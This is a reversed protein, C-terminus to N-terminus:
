SYNSQMEVVLIERFVGKTYEFVVNDDVKIVLSLRLYLCIAKILEETLIPSWGSVRALEAEHQSILGLSTSAMLGDLAYSVLLEVMVGDNPHLTPVEWYGSRMVEQYLKILFSKKDIHSLKNSYATSQLAKEFYALESEIRKKRLSMTSLLPGDLTPLISNLQTLEQKLVEYNEAGLGQASSQSMFDSLPATEYTQLTESLYSGVYEGSDYLINLLAGGPGHLKVGELSGTTKLLELATASTPMDEYIDLLSSFYAEVQRVNGRFGIRNQTRIEEIAKDASGFLDELEAAIESYDSSVSESYLGEGTELLEEQQNDEDMRGFANSITNITDSVLLHDIGEKLNGKTSIENLFNLTDSKISKLMEPTVTYDHQTGQFEMGLETYDYKMDNFRTGRLKRDTFQKLIQLFRRLDYDTEPRHYQRNRLNQSLVGIDKIESPFMLSNLLTIPKCPAGKCWLEFNDDDVVPHPLLPDWSSATYSESLITFKHTRHDRGSESFCLRLTDGESDLFWEQSALKERININMSKEIIFPVSNPPKSTSRELIGDKLLYLNSLSGHTETPYSLGFDKILSKICRVQSEIDALRKVRVSLIENDMMRLRTPVSNVMGVWEGTGRYGSPTQEQRKSFYGLTGSKSREILDILEIIPRKNLFDSFIKLRFVNSNILLKDKRLFVAEKILSKCYDLAVPKKFFYSLICHLGNKLERLGVESIDISSRVKVDPWFVRTAVTWVNTHKSTTDSLHVVRTKDTIAQFLRFAAIDEMGLATLTDKYEDKLFPYKEKYISWLKQFTERACHVTPLNFWKRKLMDILPVEVSTKDGWVLVDVRSSRRMGVSQYSVNGQLLKLFRTYEEYQDQHAFWVPVEDESTTTGDLELPTKSSELWSLLSRKIPQDASSYALVCPTNILYASAAMMRATPQHSSLSARVSSNELMFIMKLEEQEWTRLNAYLLEPHDSIKKIVSALKPLGTKQLVEIYNQVNSFKVTYNRLGVRIIKDIKSDYQITSAENRREIEWNNVQVGKKSLLYLQYDFGTLGATQDIELPFYGLSVNKTRGFESLVKKSLLHTDLGVLKYHLQAQCLQIMSCLLLSSGTELSQSLSNYFQEVRSPLREVLSTELCASNWRFVPKINRGNVFWESNYEIMNTTGVSSKATSPWISLYKGIEEKWWLLGTGLLILGANYHPLSMLAGSDDSGQIVTIQSPLKVVDSMFAQTLRKWALQLIDHKLCSADHCLGQFMGFCVEIITGRSELFPNMGKHFAERMYLYDPNSSYVHRNRDLNDILEPSLAIRKKTWLYYMCYIFKHMEKPAFYCLDVFFQSVHNRQCWKSADASKGLTLHRGILTDAEKEHDNYFRKKCEPNVVSDNEFYRCISKAIREVVFQIIRAMIELVHIERVGNHQDKIFLDSLIFGRTLLVKLCWTSVRMVTPNEDKTDRKYADVVHVLQTIVRPRRGILGKNLKKFEEMYEKRTMGSSLNPPTIGDIYDKASAKLTSLDSFRMRSLEKYISRRILEMVNPGHREKLALQCIDLLKKNLAYDWCHELPENRMGWIKEGTSEVKKYGSVQEKLVKAFIQFTHDGMASKNKTVVYSYYFSDILQDISVFGSHFITRINKYEWEIGSVTRMKKKMIRSTNYYNMISVVRNLSFVTLRSRLVKPLRDVYDHVNAGVEQLLKMYLFRLNTILEEHDIKNNIYTLTIYNLSQHFEVPLIWERTLLPIKFSHCLHSAIMLIYPGAKIFHELYGETLSSVNSVIYNTTEFLEPGLQGTELSKTFRKDAAIFFFVHSGTVTLFLLIQHRRLPKVLWEGPKTPVKYEMALESCVDSILEGLQVVELQKLYEIMEVSEIVDTLRLENEEKEKRLFKTITENKIDKIWDEDEIMNDSRSWFKEIDRTDTTPHFSLKKRAEKAVIEPNESLAKAGVGKLAMKIRDEDFLFPYIKSDERNVHRSSKRDVVLNYKKSSIHTEIEHSMDSSRVKANHICMREGRFQAKDNALKLVEWIHSPVNDNLGIDPFNDRDNINRPKSILMPFVTIQSLHKQCNADTFNSLYKHLAKPDPEHAKGSLSKLLTKNLISKVHDEEEESLPSNLELLEKNFHYWEPLELGVDFDEFASRIYESGKIDEEDGTLRVDFLEEVLSELNLGVRCRVCLDEATQNEMSMNTLISFPSVVVILYELGHEKCISEYALRKDVYSSEMSKPFGSANTALELVSNRQKDIFDPTLNTLIGLSSFPTDTKVSLRTAVFDHRIAKLEKFTMHLPGVHMAATKLHTPMEYLKETEIDFSLTYNYDFSTAINPDGGRSLFSSSLEKNGELNLIQFSVRPEVTRYEPDEIATLSL